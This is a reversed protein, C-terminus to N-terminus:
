GDAYEPRCYGGADIVDVGGLVVAGAGTFARIRSASYGYGSPSAITLLTAAPRSSLPPPWRRAPMSSLRRPKRTAWSAATL